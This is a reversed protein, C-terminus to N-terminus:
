RVLGKFIMFFIFLINFGFLVVIMFKEFLYKGVLVMVM